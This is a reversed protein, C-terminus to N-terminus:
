KFSVNENLRSSRFTEDPFMEDVCSPGTEVCRDSSKMSPRISQRSSMTPDRSTSQKLEKERLKERAMEEEMEKEKKDKQAAKRRNWVEQLTM